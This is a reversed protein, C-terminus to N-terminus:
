PRAEDAPESAQIEFAADLALCGSQQVLLPNIEISGLTEAVQVSYASLRAVADAAAAVDFRPRGRAGDLLPYGKLSRIMAAAQGVSVGGVRLAVDDLIETFVGGMGVMTVPGFVADHRVGVILEVGAGAMPSVSVGEVRAHPALRDAAQTIAGWAERAADEGVVNLMVGGIESKHAVDPSVLKMALPRDFTRAADAAADATKAVVEPLVSVGVAALIAKGTSESVATLPFPPGEIPALVPGSPEAVFGPRLRAMRALTAVADSPDRFVLFGDEEYQAVIEPEALIVLAFPRGNLAALGSRLAERLKPGLTQSGGWTTFFGVFSDYSPEALMAALFASVMDFDNMAQATVDVPNVPSAFPNRTLLAAQTAESMPPLSLGGEDATDAMMVGAGGSITIVGLGPGRPLSSRSAGYVVDLMQTTTDVRLAGSQAIAADFVSDQGMLSATHAAAATAGAASRGVKMLVVPKGAARAAELSRILGPGDKVGELYAAIVDISPDAAFAQIVEAAGIDAENGTSVWQGVEVRRTRAQALLHTGYAGSQTMLGVRGEPSLGAEPGSSFTAVHGICANFLGVCNPGLLRIGAAAATAIIRSQLAAGEPGAEAFGSSYLIAARTGNRALQVVTALVEAAPVAVIALDVPGPLADVSPYATLGQVTERNPNVPYLRGKFGAALSYAIPRGGIRRPDDSAGVIAVSEPHLFAALASTM